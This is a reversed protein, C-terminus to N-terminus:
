REVEKANKYLAEYGEIFLRFHTYLVEISEAQLFMSATLATLDFPQNKDLNNEDMYKTFEDFLRELFAIHQTSDDVVKSSNELDIDLFYLKLKSNYYLVLDNDTDFSAPVDKGSVDFLSKVGWIFNIGFFLATIEEPTKNGFLYQSVVSEKNLAPAEEPSM